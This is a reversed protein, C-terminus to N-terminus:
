QYHRVARDTLLSFFIENKLERLSGLIGGLTATDVPFAGTQFVDIAIRVRPLEGKQPPPKVQQIAIVNAKRDQDYATIQSLFGTVTQPSGLPLRPPNLFYLNTREGPKLPLGDLQNLYYLGVRSVGTIETREVLWKWLDLAEGILQDGGIYSGATKVVNNLTFGDPRYQVYITKEENAAFIGAFAPPSVHSRVDGGKFELKGEFQRNEQLHPFRNQLQRALASFSELDGPITARLDVLAETIPPRKLTTPQAM